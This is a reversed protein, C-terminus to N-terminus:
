SFAVVVLGYDGGNSSSSRCCCYHCGAGWCCGVGRCCGVNVGGGGADGGCRLLGIRTHACIGCCGSSRRGRGTSM